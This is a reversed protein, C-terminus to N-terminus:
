YPNHKLNNLINRYVIKQSLHYIKMNMIKNHGFVFILLIWYLYFTLLRNKVEEQIVNMNILDKYKHKLM